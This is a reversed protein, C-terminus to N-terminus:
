KKIKEGAKELAQGTAEVNEGTDTKLGRWTDGCAGLGFAIAALVAFSLLRRM